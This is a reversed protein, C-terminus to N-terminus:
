SKWSIGLCGLFSHDFAAPQAGLALIAQMAQVERQSHASLQVLPHWGCM